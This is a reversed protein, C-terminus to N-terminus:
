GIPPSGGEPPAEPRNRPIGAQGGQQGKQEGQIENMLMSGAALMRQLIPMVNPKSVLLKAVEKLESAVQNLKQTVLAMSNQGAGAQQDPGGQYGQAFQAVPGQQESVEPSTPPESLSPPAAYAAM